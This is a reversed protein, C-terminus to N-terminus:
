DGVKTARYLKLRSVGDKDRAFRGNDSNNRTFYMTNGDKTFVASSEHTKKNLKRDLKGANFPTGEENIQAAY